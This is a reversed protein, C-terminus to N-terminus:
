AEILSFQLLHHEVHKTHLRMWEEVSLEGFSPHISRHSPENEFHALMKVMSRMLEVKMDDFNLALDPLTDYSYPKTALPRLPKDSQIFDKMKPLHEVPTKVEFRETSLSLEFGKRLHELMQIASMEGWQAPSNPKLHKIAAPFDILLFHNEKKM